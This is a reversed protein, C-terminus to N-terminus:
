GALLPLLVVAPCITAYIYLVSHIPLARLIPTSLLFFLVTWFGIAFGFVGAGLIIFYCWIVFISILILLISQQTQTINTCTYTFKIKKAVINIEKTKMNSVYFYVRYILSYLFAIIFHFLIFYNLIYFLTLVISYNCYTGINQKGIKKFWLQHIFVLRQYIALGGFGCPLACLFYLIYLNKFHLAIGGCFLGFTTLIMGALQLNFEIHHSFSHLPILTLFFLPSSFSLLSLFFYSTLSFILPSLLILPFSFHSFFRHSFFHLFPNPHSIFTTFFLISVIHHTFILTNFKLITMLILLFLFSFSFYYYPFFFSLDSSFFFTSFSPSLLLLAYFSPLFFLHFSLLCTIHCSFVLAIYSYVLSHYLWLRPSFLFLRLLLSSLFSLIIFIHIVPLFLFYSIVYYSM